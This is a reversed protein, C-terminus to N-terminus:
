AIVTWIFFLGSILTWTYAASVLDIAVAGLITELTRM